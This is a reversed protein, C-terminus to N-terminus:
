RLSEQIKIENMPKYDWQNNQHELEGLNPQYYDGRASEKTRNVHECSEKLDKNSKPMALYELTM